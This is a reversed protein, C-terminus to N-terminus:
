MGVPVRFLPNFVDTKCQNQPDVHHCTSLGGTSELKKVSRNPGLQAQSQAGLGNWPAPGIKSRKWTSRDWKLNAMRGVEFRELIPRLGQFPSPACDPAWSPCFLDTFFNSDVPPGKLHRRTSGWFCHLVGTKQGIKLTGTPMYNSLLDDFFRSFRSKVRNCRIKKSILFSKIKQFIWIM